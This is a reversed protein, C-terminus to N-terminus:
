HCHIETLPVKKVMQVEGKIPMRCSQSKLYSDYRQLDGAGLKVDAVRHGVMGRSDCVCVCVCVCVRACQVSARLVWARACFCM